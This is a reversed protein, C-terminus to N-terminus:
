VVPAHDQASRTPQPLSSSAYRKRSAKRPKAEYLTDSLVGENYADTVWHDLNEYAYPVDLAIDAVDDFIRRLGTEVADESLFNAAIFKKLLSFIADGADPNQLANYVLQYVCEHHYHPVDLEVLCRLVEDVDGSSNFETIFMNMKESLLDLDQSGGVRGWVSDLRAMGHPGDILKRAKTVVKTALASLGDQQKLFCPALCDDAVARALFKALLEHASPCDIIIEDIAMVLQNFGKRVAEDSCHKPYLGSILSSVLERERNNMDMALNVAYFLIEGMSKPDIKMKEISEIFDQIDENHFYQRIQQKTLEEMDHPAVRPTSVEFTVSSNNRKRRPQFDPPLGDVWEDEDDFNPDGIFLEYEEGGQDTIKGWGGHGQKKPAGRILERRTSRSRRRPSGPQAQVAVSM